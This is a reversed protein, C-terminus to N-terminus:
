SIERPIRSSDILSEIRKVSKNVEDLKHLLLDGSNIGRRETSVCRPSNAVKWNKSSSRWSVPRETLFSMHTVTRGADEIVKSAESLIIKSLLGPNSVGQVHLEDVPAAKGRSISELRFTHLGFVSELCGQEVIIDIVLSLPVRRELRVVRWFPIYSPRSVKYIIESPTVYLKRSSIDKQLVYRKFPLYLLMIVGIGWALVLLLSISFWIITDYQVYKEALEDFSAMYIIRSRSDAEEDEDEESTHYLHLIDEPSSFEPLGDTRSM